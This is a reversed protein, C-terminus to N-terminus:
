ERLSKEEQFKAELNKILAKQKENKNHLMYVEYFSQFKRIEGAIKTPTDQEVRRLYLDHKLQDIPDLVLPEDYTEMLDTLTKYKAEQEAYRLVPWDAVTEADRLDDELQEIAEPNQNSTIPNNQEELASNLKGEIKSRIAPVSKLM